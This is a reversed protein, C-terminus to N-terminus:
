SVFRIIQDSRRHFLHISQMLTQPALGSVLWQKRRTRPGAFEGVCPTKGGHCDISRTPFLAYWQSHQPHRLALSKGCLGIDLIVGDM